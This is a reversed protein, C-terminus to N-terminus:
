NIVDPNRQSKIQNQRQEFFDKEVKKAEFPHGVAAVTTRLLDNCESVIEREDAKQQKDTKERRKEQSGGCESVFRMPEGAVVM